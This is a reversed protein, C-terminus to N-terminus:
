YDKDHQLPSETHALHVAQARGSPDKSKGWTPVWSCVSKAAAEGPFQKEFMDRFLFAEKTLPTNHPFRTAAQAFDEDSVTREAYDKIGDIWSYGVGDSFQEKQRWLIERPLYPKDPTDFASRLVYKEMRGNGHAKEQPDITMAVNLFEKDLFPVRVELGWAMTSKNARLCDSLHLNQVRRVTEKQFEAASPAQHFYLYGGFVEDAGEGSLVMKVGMAKIKRALFYMPTSARITTVDYSELHHIVDPLADLGEQVTFCFEHHITGLFDAVKRAAALDPSGPLGICFSHVQPWWAKTREEEEVRMAAHRCVISAVLSSDLGGSILVGYPVDTMLRKVVAREFTERVRDLLATGDSATPPAPTYDLNWWIPEFYRQLGTEPTYYHGPPFWSFEDCDDQLAKMESAIWIAGDTRGKGMYLSTIGIPDRAALFTGKEQDSLVFSFMGDLM